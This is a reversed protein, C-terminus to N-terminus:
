FKRNGYIKSIKRSFRKAELYVWFDGFFYLVAWLMATYHASINKGAQFTSPMIGLWFVAKKYVGAHFM